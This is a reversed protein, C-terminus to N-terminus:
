FMLTIISLLKKDLRFRGIIYSAIIFGILTKWNIWRIWWPIHKKSMVTIKTKEITRGKYKSVLEKYKKIVLKESECLCELELNGNNNTATIIANNKGRYTYHFDKLNGLSDCPSPISIKVTDPTTTLTTDKTETYTSDTNTIIETSIEKGGFKELCRKETACSTFLLGVLVVAVAGNNNQKPDKLAALFVGVLMIALSQWWEIDQCSELFMTAVGALFIIAGFVTTKWGKTVNDKLYDLYKISDKM